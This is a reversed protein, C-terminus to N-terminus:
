SWVEGVGQDLLHYTALPENVCGRACDACSELGGTLLSDVASGEEESLLVSLSASSSCGTALM